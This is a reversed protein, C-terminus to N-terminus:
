RCGSAVRPFTCCFVVATQVALISLHPLLEGAHPLGRPQTFGIRLLVAFPGIGSARRTGDLHSSGKPSSLDLFIATKFLVRSVHRTAYVLVERGIQASLDKNAKEWKYAPETVAVANKAAVHLLNWASGALCGFRGVCSEAAATRRDLRRDPKFALFEVWRGSRQGFHMTGSPRNQSVFLVHFNGPRVCDLDANKM